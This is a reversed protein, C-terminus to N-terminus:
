VNEATEKKNDNSKSFGFQVHQKKGLMLMCHALALQYLAIKSVSVSQLEINQLNYGADEIGTM